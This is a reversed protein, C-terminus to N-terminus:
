SPRRGKRDGYKPTNPKWPYIATFTFCGIVAQVSSSPSFFRHGCLRRDHGQALFRQASEVKKTSTYAVISYAPVPVKDVKSLIELRRCGPYHQRLNSLCSWQRLRMPGRM